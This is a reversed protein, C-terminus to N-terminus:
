VSDSIRRFVFDAAESLANEVTKKRGVAAIVAFTVALGAIFITLALNQVEGHLWYALAGTVAAVGLLSVRMLPEMVQIRIRMFDEKPLSAGGHRAEEKQAARFASRELFQKHAPRM